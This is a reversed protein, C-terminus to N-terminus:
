KIFNKIAAEEGYNWLKLYDIDIDIFKSMTFWYLVLAWKYFYESQFYDRNPKYLDKYTTIIGNDIDEYKAAKMFEDVYHYLVGNEKVWEKHTLNFSMDCYNYGRDFDTSWIPNGEEDCYYHMSVTKYLFEGMKLSPYFERLWGLLMEQITTFLIVDNPWGMSIATGRTELTVHLKDDRIIFHCYILCPYHIKPRRSGYSIIAKRSNKDDRLVDRIKLLSWRSNGQRNEYGWYFPNNKDGMTKEMQLSDGKIRPKNENFVDFMELFIYPINLNKIPIFRDRPNKILIASNLVEKFLVGRSDIIEGEKDILDKLYVYADRFNDVETYKLSSKM